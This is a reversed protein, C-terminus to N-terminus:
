PLGFNVRPVYTIRLRPRRAPVSAENSFFLIAQPVQGEVDSMLVLARQDKGPHDTRFRVILNVVDLTIEGSAAPRVARTPVPLLLPDALLLAAKGPEVGTGAIVVRPTVTVDDQASPGTFPTQTLLLVARVVTTSEVIAAPVNFRLYARAGPMGGVALLPAPTVTAKINVLYDALNPVFGTLAGPSSSHPGLTFSATDRATPTDAATAGRYFLSPPLTNKSSYIQVSASAASRIRIGIRLRDLPDKLKALLFAKPIPIKLVRTSDPHSVSDKSFSVSTIIKAPNQLLVRVAGTDLDAAPTEVDYLDVTVRDSAIAKAAVTLTLAASDIAVIDRAAAGGAVVPLLRPISDFRVVGGTQVSDGRAMVALYADSGLSPFGVLTSDLDLPFITTDKAVLNQEPCLSACAHGSSLKETCSAVVLVCAALVAVSAVWNRM